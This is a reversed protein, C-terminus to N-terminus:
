GRKRVRQSKTDKQKYNRNRKEHIKWASEIMQETEYSDYPSKHWEYMNLKKIKDIHNLFEPFQYITYNPKIWDGFCDRTVLSPGDAVLCEVGQFWFHYGLPLKIINYVQEREM